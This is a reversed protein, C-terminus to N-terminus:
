PSISMGNSAQNPVLWSPESSACSSIRAFRKALWLIRVEVAYGTEATRDIEALETWVSRASSLTGEGREKHRFRRRTRKDFPSWDTPDSLRTLALRLLM